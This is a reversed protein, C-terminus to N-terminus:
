VPFSVESQARLGDVKAFRRRAHNVCAARPRCCASVAALGAALKAETQWEGPHRASLAWWQM